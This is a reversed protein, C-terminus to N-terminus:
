LIILEKAINRTMREFYHCCVNALLYKNIGPTVMGGELAEKGRKHAM